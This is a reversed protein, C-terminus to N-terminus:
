FVPRRESAGGGVPGLARLVEQFENLTEQVSYFITNAAFAGSEDPEGAPTGTLIEIGEEIRQVPWIHFRRQEIADVVDERLVLNQVNSQPIIVGQSGTLGKVSCVDFFGEIKENVGGIAQIDGNQNVSGTVAVGQFAPAKALSSLLAYLEASSASDGEVGGYSQEFVLRASMSLASHRAFVRSLFGSLILVGKNHIPGGLKSEREIDIIGDRGAAVTATIRNPRGFTFDGLQMVSLGNVQGAASADTAILLTGREILEVIKEKIMSSRYIKEDIARQVDDGSIEGGDRRACWYAAERLLDSVEGFRTSLKDKHEATRTAHELMKAAGGADLHPLQEREVTCALFSVFSRMNDNNRDMEVDFDAKVKFLEQFDPDLQHLLQYILPSGILVVKVNLPIAQPRLTKISMLGLQEQIEEIRLEASRLGRKLAEWSYPNRLLDEVNLVLYGGNAQLLAGPKVLTFDTSLAGMQMEKEIRGVLNNYSPNLETIVPAGNQRSNDVVVNVQYKNFFQQKAAEMQQKVQPPVQQGQQESDAKLTDINEVVDEQVDDLYGHVEENDHYKEKLDDIPGEIRRIVVNRDLERIKERAERDLRRYRKQIESIEGQLEQRRKEIDEQEEQSLQQLDEDRMPQGDKVPVLATGMLSQQMIFGKEQAKERIEQNVNQGQKQIDELTKERQSSYEDSEFIGPIDRQIFERLDDIDKRFERGRGAPLRIARPEYPEQHNHVFCWDDPTSERTAMDEVFGRVSTRKGIGPPGAVYVNFGRGAVQLGFQLAKIARDQGIINESQQAKATGNFPVDEPTVRLRADTHNLESTM